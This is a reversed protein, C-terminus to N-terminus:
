APAGKIRRSIGGRARYARVDLWVLGRGRSCWTHRQGAQIPRAEGCGSGGVREVGDHLHAHSAQRSPVGEEASTGRRAWVCGSYGEGGSVVVVVEGEGRERM